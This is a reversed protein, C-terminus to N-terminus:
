NIFEKESRHYFTVKQRIRRRSYAGQFCYYLVGLNKKMNVCLATFIALSNEFIVVQMRWPNQNFSKMRSSLLTKRLDWECTGYKAHACFVYRYIWTFNLDRQFNRQFDSNGIEIQTMQIFSIGGSLVLKDKGLNEIGDCWFEYLPFQTSEVCLCSVSIYAHSIFSLVIRLIRKRIKM